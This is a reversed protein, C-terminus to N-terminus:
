LELFDAAWVRAAALTEDTARGARGVIRTRSIARLQEVMAWSEHKLKGGEVRVHNPWGRDVSTIPAVIALTTVTALYEPGAMVLAPRRGSQERGVAGGAEIWVIEAPALDTM